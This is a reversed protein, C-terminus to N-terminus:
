RVWIPGENPSFRVIRLLRSFDPAAIQLANGLWVRNRSCVVVPERPPFNSRLRWRGIRVSSRVSNGDYATARATKETRLTIRCRFGQRAGNGMGRRSVTAFPSKNPSDVKMQNGAFLWLFVRYMIRMNCTESFKPPTAATSISRLEMRTRSRDVCDM